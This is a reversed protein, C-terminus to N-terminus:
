RGDLWFRPLGTTDFDIGRLRLGKFLSRAGVEYYTFIKNEMQWSQAKFPPDAASFAVALDRYAHGAQIAGGIGDKVPKWEGADPMDRLIVWSGFQESYERFAQRNKQRFDPSAAAYARINAMYRELARWDGAVLVAMLRWAKDDLATATSEAQRAKADAAAKAEAAKADASATAQISRAVTTARVQTAAALARAQEATATAQAQEPSLQPGCASFAMPLALFCVVFCTHLPKGSVRSDM